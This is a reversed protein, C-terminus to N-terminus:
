TQIRLMRDFGSLDPQLSIVADPFHNQSTELAIKGQQDEIEIFLVGGPALYAPAEELFRNILDFGSIGGDLAITPERGYVILGHLTETPIYPLNATIIDFGKFKPNFLNAQSLSIRAAVNHEKVNCRAVSLATNSIDSAKIILNPINVALSIAICGSGTGIDAAMRSTPNEKLWQIANDVILETEPRPILVDPNVHFSLNYFEWKGLVYPLPVGSRLQLFADSLHEAQTITLVAEPHSLIWTRPRKLIHALLVQVDLNATTSDKLQQTLNNQLYGLNRIETLQM